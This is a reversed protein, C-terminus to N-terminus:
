LRNFYSLELFNFLVCTRYPETSHQYYKQTCVDIALSTDTQGSDVFGPFIYGSASPIRCVERNQPNKERMSGKDTM